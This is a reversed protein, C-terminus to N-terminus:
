VWYGLLHFPLWHNPADRLGEGQRKRSLEVKSLIYEISENKTKDNM